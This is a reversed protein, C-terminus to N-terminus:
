EKDDLAQKKKNKKKRKKFKTSVRGLAKTLEGRGKYSAQRYQEDIRGREVKSRLLTLKDKENIMTDDEKSKAEAKEDRKKGTKGDPYKSPDLSLVGCIEGEPIKNSPKEEKDEEKVANQTFFNDEPSVEEWQGAKGVGVPGARPEEDLPTAEFTQFTRTYENDTSKKIDVGDFDKPKKFESKNTKRNFYYMKGTKADMHSSWVPENQLQAVSFNNDDDQPKNYGLNDVTNRTGVFSRLQDGIKSGGFKNDNSLFSEAAAQEIKYLEDDYNQMKQYAEIQSNKPRKGGNDLIENRMQIHAESKEHISISAPHNPIEIRCIPCTHMKKEDRKKWSDTAIGKFGGYNTSM